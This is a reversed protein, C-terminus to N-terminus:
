GAQQDFCVPLIHQHIRPQAVFLIRLKMRDKGDFARRREAFGERLLAEAVGVDMQDHIRMQVKIVGSAVGDGGARLGQLRRKGFGGVTDLQSFVFVRGLGIFPRPGTITM